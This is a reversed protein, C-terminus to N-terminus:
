CEIHDSSRTENRCSQQRRRPALDKQKRTTADSMATRHLQTRAGWAMGLPGLSLDVGGRWGEGAWGGCVFQISYKTAPSSNNRPIPSSLRPRAHFIGHKLSAVCQFPGGAQGQRPSNMLTPPLSSARSILLRKGPPVLYLTTSPAASLPQTSTPRSPHLSSWGTLWLARAASPWTTVGEM